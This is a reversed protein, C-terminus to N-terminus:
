AKRALAWVSLGPVAVQARASARSLWGDVALGACVAGTVFAGARWSGVATDAHAGLAELAPRSRVGRAREGLKALARPLLLSHFLGGTREIALGCRALLARLEAPRYRRYHGLEVDHSTYLAMWAPVSVLVEGGRRVAGGVVDSLFAADDAVHEVVDLLLVLDFPGAPRERDFHLAAPAGAAVRRLHAEAYSPDYCYVESGAALRALLARGVFGDGGGVDLVRLGGGHTRAVLGSFFRARALEWPHRSVRTFDPLERLDM